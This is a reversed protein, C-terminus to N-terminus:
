SNWAWVVHRADRIAEELRGDYLYEIKRRPDSDPREANLWQAWMWRSDTGTELVLLVRPLGKVVVGHVVQFTPFILVGDSTLLMLLRLHDGAEIDRTM